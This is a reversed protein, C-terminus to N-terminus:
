SFVWLGGNAITQVKDVVVNVNDNVSTLGKDINHTIKLLQVSAMAVEDNILKDLKNLGDELDTRGAVKKLFRESGTDAELFILIPYIPFKSARSQEMEKTATALIDLVEVTIQVMKGTM